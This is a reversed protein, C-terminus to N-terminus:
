RSGFAFPLISFFLSSTKASEYALSSYPFTLAASPCYPDPALKRSRLAESFFGRPNDPPRKRTTNLEILIIDRPTATLSAGSADRSRGKVWILDFARSYTHPLGM